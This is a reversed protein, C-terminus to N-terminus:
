AAMLALFALVCGWLADHVEAVSDVTGDRNTCHVAYCQGGLYGKETLHRYGFQVRGLLNLDQEHLDHTRDTYARAEKRAVHRIAASPPVDLYFSADPKPMRNMEYELRYIWKLLEGRQSESARAGQYALNSGVYRDLVVIDHTKLLKELYNRSELRDLAFMAAAQYPSVEDLRGIEGNLYRAILRSSRTRGYRPFSVSEATRGSSRLKEILLGTQTGKGSGDIGEIALLM